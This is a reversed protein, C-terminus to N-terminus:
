GPFILIIQWCPYSSYFFSYSRIRLNHTGNSRFPFSSHSSILVPAYFVYMKLSLFFFTSFKKKYHNHLQLHLHILVYKINFSGKIIHQTINIANPLLTRHEDYIWDLIVVVFVVIATTAVSHSAHLIHMSYMNSSTFIIYKCKAHANWHLFCFCSCVYVFSSFSLPLSSSITFM